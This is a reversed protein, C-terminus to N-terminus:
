AGEARVLRRLLGEVEAALGAGRRVDAWGYRLLTWGLSALRNSRLRDRRFDDRGSHFIRGDAEIGLLARPYALDIRVVSGTPFQVPFQREPEPLGAARLVRM